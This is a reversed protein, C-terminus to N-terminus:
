PPDYGGPHLPNCRCIRWLGKLSGRLPGYKYVAGVFYDSCSPYFRCTPGLVPRLTWQYVRVLTVLLLSVFRAVAHVLAMMIPRGPFVTQGESGYHMLM